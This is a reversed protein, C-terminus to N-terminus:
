YSLVATVTLAGGGTQSAKRVRIFAAATPNTTRTEGATATSTDFDNWVVKDNSIQLAISVGSPASAFKTTWAIVKAFSTPMAFEALNVPAAQADANVLVVQEGPQILETSM